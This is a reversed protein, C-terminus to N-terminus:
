EQPLNSLLMRMVASKSQFHKKAYTELKTILEDDLSFTAGKRVTM